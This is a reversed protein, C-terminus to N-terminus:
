AIRMISIETAGTPVRATYKKNGIAVNHSGHLLDAWAGIRLVLRESGIRMGKSGSTVCQRLLSEHNQQAIDDARKKADEVTQIIRAVNTSALLVEIQKALAIVDNYFMIRKTAVELNASGHTPWNVSCSFTYKCWLNGVEDKFWDDVEESRIHLDCNTVEVNHFELSLFFWSADGEGRAVRQLDELKRTSGPYGVYQAMSSDLVFQAIQARTSKYNDVLDNNTNNM